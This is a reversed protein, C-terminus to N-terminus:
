ENQELIFNDLQEIISSYSYDIEDGVGDAVGGDEDYEIYGVTLEIKGKAIIEKEDFLSIDIWEKDGVSPNINIEDIKLFLKQEDIGLIEISDGYGISDPLNTIGVKRSADEYKSDIWKAIESIEEESIDDEDIVEPFDTIEDM